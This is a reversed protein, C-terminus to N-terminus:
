EEALAEAASLIAPLTSLEYEVYLHRIIGQKDILFSRPVYMSAYLSYITKQPDLGIPLLYDHSACYEEMYERTYGRSIPLYHIGKGDIRKVIREESVDMLQVCTPCRPDWFTLLVVDGRLDSLRITDGDLMEVTFDPAMQGVSVLTTDDSSEEQEKICSTALLASLAVSMVCIKRALDFM